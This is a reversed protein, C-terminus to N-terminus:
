KDSLSKIMDVSKAIEEYNYQFLPFIKPYFIEFTIKGKYNKKILYRVFKNTDFEGLTLPLHERSNHFSSLHINGIRSFLKEFIIDKQPHILKTHSTDYTMNFNYKKAITFINYLSSTDKHTVWHDLSLKTKNYTMNELLVKIKYKQQLYSLYKFYNKMKESFISTFCLPHFVIDKISYKAVQAVFTEDYFIGLGSWYPQHVTTIPLSYKQSLTVIADFNWRSKFGMIIEVGDVRAEKAKKFSHEIRSFVPFDGISTSVYVQM